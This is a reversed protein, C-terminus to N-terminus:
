HFILIMIFKKINFRSGLAFNDQQQVKSRSFLQWVMSGSVHLFTTGSNFRSGLVQLLTIVNNILIMICKGSNFRPGPTFNDQQQVQSRSYLLEVISGPVQLLNVISRFRSCIFLQGVTSGPVQLFNIRNHFRSGQTFNDQQQVYSRSYLIRKNFRFGLTFKDYKQIQFM